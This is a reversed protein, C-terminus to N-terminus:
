VLIEEKVKAIWQELQILAEETEAKLGAVLTGTALKYELLRFSGSVAKAGVQGTRAALRHIVERLIESQGKQLAARIKQIDELSEQAFDELISQVLTENHDLMSRLESLDSPTSKGQLGQDSQYIIQLFDKELFPKVLIADFGEALLNKREDPLAHATCAILKVHSFKERIYKALFQGNYDPMRIDLFVISVNDFNVTFVESAQNITSYTLSHKKLIISCLKLIMTDDDIIVVHKKPSNDTSPSPLAEPLPQGYAREFSLEVIFESGRGQESKASISGHLYDTIKKVISLGLGSGGFKEQISSNGQEFENFIRSLEEPSMGIGTDCVSFRCRVCLDVEASVSLSIKGEQTFKIANSLLNYLLQKLRFPDGMLLISPLNKFSYEFPLNKRDALITASDAVEQITEQLDFPVLELSFHGSELRNYDLIENALQLLHQSAKWIAGASADNQYTLQLQESYGIISQLPTRIEHSMNALFRQKVLSLQETKLQSEVLQQRYYNSRSIDIMMLFSLIAGAFLFIAVIIGINKSSDRALTAAEHNNKQTILIEENEVEQLISLLQNVLSMNTSVLKLERQLLQKSEFQKSQELSLIMKGIGQLTSDSRLVFLTDVKVSLEEKVERIPIEEDKKKSSFLRTFFNKKKEPEIQFTITTTRKETTTVSSDAPPQARNLVSALSDMQNLKQNKTYVITRLKLYAIFYNDRQRLIDKMVQLRQLQVPDSWTLKLLSDLHSAISNSERLYQQHPKGPRQIVDMRQQQDLQTIQKFLRNLRILKENPTSLEDVKTLLSDFGVYTTAVALTLATIALLSAVIIKNRLSSLFSPDKPHSEM